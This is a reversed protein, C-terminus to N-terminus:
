HSISRGRFKKYDGQGVAGTVGVIAVTVQENPGM